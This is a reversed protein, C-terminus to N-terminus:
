PSSTEGLRVVCDEGGALRARESHVSARLLSVLPQPLTREAAFTQLADELGEASVIARLTFDFSDELEVGDALTYRLPLLRTANLDVAACSTVEVAADVAADVAEVDPACKRDHVALPLQALKQAALLGGIAKPAARAAREYLARARATCRHPSIDWWLALHYLASAHTRSM